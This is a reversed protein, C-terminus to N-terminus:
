GRGRITRLVEVIGPDHFPEYKALYGVGKLKSVISWVENDEAQGDPDFRHYLWAILEDTPLERKDLVAGWFVNAATRWHAEQNDDRLVDMMADRVAVWGDCDILSEITEVKSEESSEDNLRDDALIERIRQCIEM